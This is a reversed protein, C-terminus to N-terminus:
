QSRFQVSILLAQPGDCGKNVVCRLRAPWVPQFSRTQLAFLLLDFLVDDAPRSHGFNNDGRNRVELQLEANSNKRGRQLCTPEFKLTTYTDTNM